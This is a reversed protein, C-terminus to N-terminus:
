KWLWGIVVGAVVALLLIALAKALRSLWRGFEEVLEEDWRRWQDGDYKTEQHGLTRRLEEPIGYHPCMNNGGKLDRRFLRQRQSRERRPM